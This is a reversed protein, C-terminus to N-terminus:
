VDFGVISRCEDAATRDMLYHLPAVIRQGIESLGYLDGPALGESIEPLYRHCPPRQATRSPLIIAVRQRTSAGTRQGFRQSYGIVGPRVRRARTVQQYDSGPRAAQGRRHVAPSDPSCPNRSVPESM